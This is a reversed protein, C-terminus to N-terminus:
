IKRRSDKKRNEAFEYLLWPNKEKSYLIGAWKMISFPPRYVVFPTKIGRVLVTSFYEQTEVKAIKKYILKVWYRKEYSFIKGKTDIFKKGSSKILSVLDGYSKILIYKHPYSSKLRRKGLTDEKINLDDLCKGDAFIIGDSSYEIHVEKPLIYVPFVLDNLQM